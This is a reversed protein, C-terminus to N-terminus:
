PRIESDEPTRGKNKSASDELGNVQLEPSVPELDGFGKLLGMVGTPFVREIEQVQFVQLPLIPKDFLFPRFNVPNVVVEIGEDGGGVVSM